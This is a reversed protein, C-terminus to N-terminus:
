GIFKSMNTMMSRRMDDVKLSGSNILVKKSDAKVLKSNKEENLKAEKARTHEKIETETNFFFNTSFNKSSKDGCDRCACSRRRQREIGNKHSNKADLPAAGNRKGINSSSVGFNEGVFDEDMRGPSPPRSLGQVSINDFILSKKNNPSKDSNPSGDNKFSLFDSGLENLEM